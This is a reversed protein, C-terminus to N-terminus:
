RVDGSGTETVTPVIDEITVDVPLATGVAVAQQIAAATERVPAGLALSVHVAVRDDGIRVGPVRRGPLYTAVEGFMGGHLSVVGPVSCVAAAIQEAPESGTRLRPQAPRSTREGRGDVSM